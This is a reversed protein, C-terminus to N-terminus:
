AIVEIRADGSRVDVGERPRYVAYLVREGADAGLQEDTLRWALLEVTEGAEIRLDDSWRPGGAQEEVLDGRRVILAINPAIALADPAGNRAVLRVDIAEGARVESPTARLGLELGRADGGWQYTDGTM